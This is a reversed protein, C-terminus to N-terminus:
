YSGTVTFPIGTEWIKPAILYGSARLSKLLLNEDYLSGVSVKTWGNRIGAQTIPFTFIVNLTPYM